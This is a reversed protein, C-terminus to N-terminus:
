GRLSRKSPARYEGYVRNVFGHEPLKGVLLASLGDAEGRPSELAVAHSVAHHLVALAFEPQRRISVTNDILALVARGRSLV